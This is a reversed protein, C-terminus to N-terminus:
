CTKSLAQVLIQQTLAQWKQCFSNLVMHTSISSEKPKSITLREISFEEALNLDSIKLINQGKSDLKADLNQTEEGNPYTIQNATMSGAGDKIELTFKELNFVPKEPAEIMLNFNEIAIDQELLADLNGWLSSPKGKSSKKEKKATKHAEIEPDTPFDKRTSYQVVTDHVHIQTIGEGWNGKILPLLHYNLEIQSCKLSQLNRSGSLDIDHLELGRLISGEVEFEGKLYLDHLVKSLQWDVVKRFIPGNILPLFVVIGILAVWLVRRLWRKSKAKTKPPM